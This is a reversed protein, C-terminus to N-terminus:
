KQESEVSEDQNFFRLLDGYIIKDSYGLEQKAKEIYPLVVSKDELKEGTKVDYLMNNTYVYKDTIFSGDRLITFAQNDRAFVDQGFQLTDSTDIGLLNMITPRIDVQGSVDSITKGKQGPIHVIFPVKQLQVTEFPTIEKGLYQEMAHNHNESIGYHDGYMIIISNDYLGAEKLKKIFNKVAEDLYRVTTFYNDVTKDGSDYPAIYQDDLDLDFPFHNTLTIFKSYFPQPLDKMIEVSQEFFDIDKLGWGVSNEDTVEFSEVDFFKDYGFSHYVLDRNWFSKDNAHFVSTFYGNEKLISPSAVYTNNPNTFFVAGRDVPYLSNAVIFESDSTKGQGTQHYFNNFYYSEKIFDNLFPTIEEGHVKGNIVFNQVSELSILIVNKGKAIGFMDEDAEKQNSKVYNEIDVLESSDAMAKQATTKTSLVIDYIHYNYIGINKVLIKRDFSRSLLQPREAEALGLNFVFILVVSLFYSSKVRFPIPEFNLKGKEKWFYVALLIFSAFSLVTSTNLLGLISSGLDSMNSTQLLVPLTIFDDFFGYFVVNAALIFNLIFTIGLIFNERRKGSAFMTLGFLLVTLSLPSIVYIFKQMTNELEIEFTFRCILYTNLWVFGVALLIPFLKSKKLHKVGM